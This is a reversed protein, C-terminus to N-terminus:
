DEPGDPGDRPPRGRVARHALRPTASPHSPCEGRDRGGPEERVAAVSFAVAIDGRLSRARTRVGRSRTTTP